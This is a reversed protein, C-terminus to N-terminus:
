QVKLAYLGARWNSSYLIRNTADFKIDFMGMDFQQSNFDKWTVGDTESSVIFPTPGFCKATYVSHGDGGIANYGGGPGIVTWTAGNDTSKANHDAGSAFLDGNHTYYVTGGGHQIGNDTVKTWTAGANTTRLMGNGQTGLLWTNANGIGLEPNYLFTITHGTGWGNPDHVIWSEGGDKSELVGSSTNWKTDTWGWAGHFSLLVHAFDTPDVAIGYVDSPNFSPSSLKAFGQPIKLNEGGDTSVYFGEHGRVGQVVYLHQTNKPDIRVHLPAEVHDSGTYDVPIHGVRTWTSGANISKYLGGISTDYSGTCV